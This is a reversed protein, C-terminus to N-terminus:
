WGPSRPATAVDHGATLGRCRSEDLRLNDGWKAEDSVWVREDVLCRVRGGDPGKRQLTQCTHKM